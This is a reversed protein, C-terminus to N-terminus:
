IGIQVLYRDVNTAAQSGKHEDKITQFIEKADQDEGADLYNIGAKLLYDPRQSDNKNVRSARFYLDAAEKHEGNFAHYSAQGAFSAAKYMDISGSYDKYYKYAEELQGLFAYSNALYIKATEGNETSGYNEVLQKLGIIDTGQRGEIAELYSGTDYMNMVRSLHLGAEDNVESRYNLYYLVALVAVVAIGAYMLIRNKNEEYYTQSKYYLEVLRDQKIQKKSLKKKKALM